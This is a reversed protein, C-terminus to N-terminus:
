ALNRVVRVIPNLLRGLAALRRRRTSELSSYRPSLCEPPAVASAASRGGHRLHPLVCTSARTALRSVSPRPSLQHLRGGVVGCVLRRVLRPELLFRSSCELSTDRVSMFFEDWRRPIEADQEQVMGSPLGAVTRSIGLVWKCARVCGSRLVLEIFENNSGGDAQWQQVETM